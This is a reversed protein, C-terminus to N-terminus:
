WLLPFYSLRENFFLNVNGENLRVAISKLMSVYYVVVEEDAFNYYYVIFDNLRSHSLLYNLNEEKQINSLLMSM